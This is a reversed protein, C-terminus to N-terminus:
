APELRYVAGTSGGVQGRQNTCVYIDGGPDRGFSLVHPEVSDAVTVTTTEWLGSEAPRAAFLQGEARWDSFVYLGSLDALRDGDYLYGGIISVGGVPQDDHAYEVIPERLREGADTAAPCEERQYCATGERVNWGYNGGKEVLDVEERRSQGVDAVFLRGEPGFSMGWPNRFGWAYHEDGGEADILPNTPPIGYPRDGGGDVDIRLVSGLLNETVDQGNGGPNPDYWDEVHGMGADGAGGGDGVGVYLYDDPGFLINGSNHNPQPEPIELLPRETAPDASTAGPDTRFESLVFTHSYGSPTGDRPPASYRVYFRGNDVFEPHLALGLLGQESFGGVSVMRDAIDLFQTRQGDEVLYLQGSQDAVYLQDAAETPAVVDVPSTLGDAVTALGVSLESLPATAEDGGDDDGDSCGALPTSLAALGGLFRRRSLSPCM